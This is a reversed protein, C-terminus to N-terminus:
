VRRVLVSIERFYGQEEWNISAAIGGRQHFDGGVSKAFPCTVSHFIAGILKMMSSLLFLFFTCMTHSLYDLFPM